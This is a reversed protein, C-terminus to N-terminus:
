GSRERGKGELGEEKEVGKRRVGGGEGGRKEGKRM